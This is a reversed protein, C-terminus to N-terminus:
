FRKELQLVICLQCSHCFFDRYSVDFHQGGEYLAEDLNRKMGAYDSDMLHFLARQYKLYLQTSDNVNQCKAIYEDFLQFAKKRQNM